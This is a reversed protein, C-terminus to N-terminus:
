TQNPGTDRSRLVTYLAFAAGPLWGFCTLALAVWFTLGLGETLWVGLPPLLLAALITGIGPRTEVSGMM